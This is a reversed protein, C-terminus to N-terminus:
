STCIVMAVKMGLIGGSDGGNGDCYVERILCRAVVTTGGSLTPSAKKGRCSLAKSVFLLFLFVM